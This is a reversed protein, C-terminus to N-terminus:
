LIVCSILVAAPGSGEVEYRDHQLNVGVLALIFGATVMWSVPILWAIMERPAGSLLLVTMNIAWHYLIAIPVSGRTRNFLWIGPISFGVTLLIFLWFPSAQRLESPLPLLYMPLHFAAHLVGFLIAAALPSFRAIMRPIAFGRWGIEEGSALLLTFITLALFQGAPFSLPAGMLRSVSAAAVHVLLPLGIAILYWRPSIRWLRTRRWLERLGPRGGTLAAALFAAPAPTFAILGVLVPQGAALVLPVVVAWSLLAVLGFFTLLPYRSM